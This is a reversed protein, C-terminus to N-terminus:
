YDRLDPPSYKIDVFWKKLSPVRELQTEVVKMAEKTLKIGSQYTTPVLKVVPHHGKWTM